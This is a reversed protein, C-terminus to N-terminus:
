CPWGISKYYEHSDGVFQKFFLVFLTLETLAAFYTGEVQRAVNKENCTKTSTERKKVKRSWSTACCFCKNRTSSLQQSFYLAPRNQVVFKPKTARKEDFDCSTAYCIQEHGLLDVLWRAANRRDVVFTSNVKNTKNKLRKHLCELFSYM